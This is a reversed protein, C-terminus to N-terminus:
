RRRAAYRELVRAARPLAADSTGYDPQSSLPGQSKCSGGCQCEGGCQCPHDGCARRAVRAAAQKVWRQGDGKPRGNSKQEIIAAVRQASGGTMVAEFRSITDAFEDQVRTIGFHGLAFLEGFAESLGSMSETRSYRTTHWEQRSFDVSLGAKQEYRHGLEHLLIYDPSGYKGPTRAMIKPTARVFLTDSPANYKGAVTGGRFADPGALRVMFGGSLAKRRWGRLSSFLQELSKVYRQFTKTAVGRDNIYTATSTKIERVVQTSGEESFLHVLEPVQSRFEAWRSKLEEVGVEASARTTPAFAAVWLFTGADQKLQKGGRPTTRLGIRFNALFWTQFTLGIERLRSWEAQDQIAQEYDQILQAIKRALEGDLGALVNRAPSHNRHQVIAM